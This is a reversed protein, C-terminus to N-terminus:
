RKDTIDKWKTGDRLEHVLLAGHGKSRPRPSPVEDLYKMGDRLEHVLPANQDKSRPRPVPVEDTYKMGSRLTHGKIEPKPKAPAQHAKEKGATTAVPEPKRPSTRVPEPSKREQVKEKGKASANVKVEQTSKKNSEKGASTEPEVEDPSHKLDNPKAKGEGEEDGQSRGPISAEISERVETSLSEWWKRLGRVVGREEAGVEVPPGKVEMKGAAEVVGSRWVAWASTRTSTLMWKREKGRRNRQGKSPQIQVKVDRFLIVDGAEPSPLSRVYPRFLQATTTPSASTSSSPDTLYLTQTYDRPGAKARIPKTASVCIALLDVHQNHYEHLAALPTYYSLQTRLGTNPQRTTFDITDVDADPTPTPSEISSTTAKVEDTAKLPPSTPPQQSFLEVQATESSLKMIGPPLRPSSFNKPRVAKPTLQSDETGESRLIGEPATHYEQSQSQSEGQIQETLGSTSKQTLRPTPLSPEIHKSLDPQPYAQETETQQSADPTQPFAFDKRRISLDPAGAEDRDTITALSDEQKAQARTRPRIRESTSPPSSPMTYQPLSEEVESEESHEVSESQQTNEQSGPEVYERYSGESLGDSNPVVVQLGDEPGEPVESSSELEESGVLDVIEVKSRSAAEQVPSSLTLDVSDVYTDPVEDRALQPELAEGSITQVAGQRITMEEDWKGEGMEGKEAKEVDEDKDKDAEEEAGEVNIERDEDEDEDEEDVDQGERRYDPLLESKHPQAEDGTIAPTLSTRLAPQVDKEMAGTGDMELDDVEGEADEQEEEVVEMNGSEEAIAHLAGPERAHGPAEDSLMSGGDKLGAHPESDTDFQAIMQEFLTDQKELSPPSTSPEQLQRETRDRQSELSADLDPYQVYDHDDPESADEIDAMDEDVIPSSSSDTEEEMLLGTPRKTTVIPSTEEDYSDSEEEYSSSTESGEDIFIPRAASGDTEIDSEREESQEVQTAFTSSSDKRKGALNPESVKEDSAPRVEFSEVLPASLASHSTGLISGISPQHAYHSVVPKSRTELPSVVDLGPSQLPQLRPTDPAESKEERVDELVPAAEQVDTILHLAPSKQLSSVVDDPPLPPSSALYPSSALNPYPPSRAQADAFHLGDQIHEPSYATFSATPINETIPPDSVVETEVSIDRQQDGPIPVVGAEEHIVAVEALRQLEERVLAADTGMLDGSIEVDSKEDTVISSEIQEAEAAKQIAQTATDADADTSALPPHDIDLEHEAGIRAEQEQAAGVDPMDLKRVTESDVQVEPEPSPTREVFRWQGSARGFKARKTPPGEEWTEDDLFPDATRGLVSISAFDKRKLFAPSSWVDPQKRLLPIPEIIPSRAVGNPTEPPTISLISPEPDPSPQM